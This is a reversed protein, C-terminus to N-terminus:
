AVSLYSNSNGSVQCYQLPPTPWTWPRWSRTWTPSSPPLYWRHHAPVSKPPKIKVTNIDLKVSPRVISIDFKVTLKIISIDFQVALETISFDLKVTFRIFSIKFSM